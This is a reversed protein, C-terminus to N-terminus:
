ASIECFGLSVLEKNYEDFEEVKHRFDDSDLNGSKVADKFGHVIKVFRWIREPLDPHDLKAVAIGHRVKGIEGIV